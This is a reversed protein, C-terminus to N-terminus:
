CHLAVLVEVCSVIEAPEIRIVVANFGDIQCLVFIFSYDFLDIEALEDSFVGQILNSNALALGVTGDSDGLKSLKVFSDESFDSITNLESYAITGNHIIQVFLSWRWDIFNSGHVVENVGLVENVAAGCHESEVCFLRAFEYELLHSDHLAVM